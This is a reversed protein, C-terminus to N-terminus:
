STKTVEVKENKDVVEITRKPVDDTLGVAKNETEEAADDAM